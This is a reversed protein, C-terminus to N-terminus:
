VPSFLRYSYSYNKNIILLCLPFVAERLRYCFLSYRCILEQVAIDVHYNDDHLIFSPM